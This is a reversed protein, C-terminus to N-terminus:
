VKGPENCLSVAHASDELSVVSSNEQPSTFTSSTNDLRGPEFYGVAESNRYDSEKFYENMCATSRDICNGRQAKIDRPNGLALAYPNRLGSLKDMAKKAM